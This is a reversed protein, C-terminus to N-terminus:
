SSFEWSGVREGFPEAKVLESRTGPHAVHRWCRPPKTSLHGDHWSFSAGFKGAEVCFDLKFLKEGEWERLTVLGEKLKESGGPKTRGLDDVQEKFVNAGVTEEDATALAVFVAKNREGLTNELKEVRNQSLGERTLGHELVDPTGLKGATAEVFYHLTVEFRSAEFTGGV